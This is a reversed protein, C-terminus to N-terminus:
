KKELVSVFFIDSGGINKFKLPNIFYGNKRKIMKESNSNHIKINKHKQSIKDFDKKNISDNILSENRKSIM